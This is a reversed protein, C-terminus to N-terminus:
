KNPIITNKNQIATTDSKAKVPPNPTKNMTVPPKPPAPKYKYYQTRYYAMSDKIVKNNKNLSELNKNIIDNQVKENKMTNTLAIIIDSNENGNLAEEIKRYTYIVRKLSDNVANSAEVQDQLIKVVKESVMKATDKNSKSPTPPADSTAIQRRLEDNEKTLKNIQTKLRVVTESLISVMDTSPDLASPADGNKDNGKVAPEDKKTTKKISYVYFYDALGNTNPGIIIGMRGYTYNKESFSIQYVGNIYVDYNKNFCKVEIANYQGVPKIDQSKVWGSNIENGSIFQYSAGILQKVRYQRNRNMEIVFGGGKAQAMIIIGINCNDDEAKVLKLNVNVAFSELQNEWETLAAYQTSKNKRNLIYEGNQIVFLNDANTFLPWNQKDADFDDIFEPNPFQEKILQSFSQINFLLFLYLLIKKPSFIESM